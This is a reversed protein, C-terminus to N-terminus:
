EFVGCPKEERSRVVMIIYDVDRLFLNPCFYSSGNFDNSESPPKLFVYKSHMFQWNSIDTTGVNKWYM